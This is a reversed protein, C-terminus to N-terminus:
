LEGGAGIFKRRGFRFGGGEAFFARFAPGGPTGKNVRVRCSGARTGPYVHEPM